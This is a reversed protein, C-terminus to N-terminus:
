AAEKVKVGKIEKFKYLSAKEPWKVAFFRSLMATRNNSIKFEGHATIGAVNFRIYECCAKAGWNRRGADWQELSTEEFVRWIKPNKIFWDVSEIADGAPIEYQTILARIMENPTIQHM